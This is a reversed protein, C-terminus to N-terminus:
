HQHYKKWKYIQMSQIVNCQEQQDDCTENNKINQKNKRVMKGQENIWLTPQM